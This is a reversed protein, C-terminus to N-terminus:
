TTKAEIRWFSEQFSTGRLNEVLALHVIHDPLNKGVRSPYVDTGGALVTCISNNIVQLVDELLLPALYEGTVLM